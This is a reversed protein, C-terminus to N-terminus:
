IVSKVHLLVSINWKERVIVLFYTCIFTEAITVDKRRECKWAETSLTKFARANSNELWDCDLDNQQSWDYDLMDKESWYFPGHHTKLWDHSPLIEMQGSLM